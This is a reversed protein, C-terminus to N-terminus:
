FAHMFYDEPVYLIARIWTRDNDAHGLLLHDSSLAYMQQDFSIM